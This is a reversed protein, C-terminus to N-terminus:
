VLSSRMSSAASITSSAKRMEAWGGVLAIQDQFHDSLTPRNVPSSPISTMRATQKRNEVLQRAMLGRMTTVPAEASCTAKATRTRLVSKPMYEILPLLTTLAQEFVGLGAAREYEAREARLGTREPHDEGKLDQGDDDEDRRKNEM